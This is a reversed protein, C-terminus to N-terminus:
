RLFLQDRPAIGFSCRPHVAGDSRDFRAGGDTLTRRTSRAGSLSGRSFLPNGPLSSPCILMPAFTRPRVPTPKPPWLPLITWCRGERALSGTRSRSQSLGAPRAGPRWGTPTCAPLRSATDLVCAARAARVARVSLYLRRREAAIPAESLFRLNRSHLAELEFDVPFRDRGAARNTM